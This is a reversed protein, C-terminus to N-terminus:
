AHVAHESLFNSCHLRVQSRFIERAAEQEIDAVLLLQYYYFVPSYYLLALQKQDAQEITRNEMMKILVDRYLSMPKRMVWKYYTNRLKSDHWHEIQMIRIFARMYEDLLYREVFSEGIAMFLTKDLIDADAIAQEFGRAVAGARMEFGSCLTDMIDQKNAFHYYITSERIGVLKCIDRVSVAEFGRQSFLEMAVSLIREKTNEM